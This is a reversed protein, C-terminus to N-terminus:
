IILLDAYRIQFEVAEVVSEFIFFPCNRHEGIDFMEYDPLNTLEFEGPPFIGNFCVQDAIRVWSQWSYPVKIKTIETTM